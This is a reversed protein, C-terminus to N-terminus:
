LREIKFRQHILPWAHDGHAHESVLFSMDTQKARSITYPCKIELSIALKSTPLSVMLYVPWYAFWDLDRAPRADFSVLLPDGGPENDSRRTNM